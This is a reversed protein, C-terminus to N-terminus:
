NGVGTQGLKPNPLAFCHCQGNASFQKWKLQKVGITYEGGLSRLEEETEAPGWESTPSGGLTCLHQKKTKKKKRKWNEGLSM